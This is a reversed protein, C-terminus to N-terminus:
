SSQIRFLYFKSDVFFEPELGLNTFELEYEMNKKWDILKWKILFDVSVWKILKLDCCSKKKSYNFFRWKIRMM